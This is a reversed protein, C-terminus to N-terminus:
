TSSPKVRLGLHMAAEILSLYAVRYAEWETIAGNLSNHDTYVLNLHKSAKGRTERFGSFSDV